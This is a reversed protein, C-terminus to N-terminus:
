CEWFLAAIVADSLLFREAPIALQGDRLTADGADLWPRAADLLTELRAPGFRRGIAKTDLGEATRLATMVTENYRDRETLRESEYRDGGALYRGIDAVAWRRCEGDFSHAAPGIGLYPDGSWYASNHIARRGPLAYNSVEYHEFGADRLTRHVTLFEEESTEETVPSFRGQAMRRGFATQPEVTLHYASVHQVGLAVTERLNRALTAAGFGPVGFILDVTVNGFGACAITKGAIREGEHELVNQLYYVAGYGTAEPRILSGGYSFRDRICM